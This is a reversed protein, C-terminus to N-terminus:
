LLLGVERARNVAQVRSNAGLKSYLSRIHSQITSPKVLLHAAMEGYSLGSAIGELVDQERRTLEIAGHNGTGKLQPAGAIRFLHRGLSPSIPSQGHLVDRIGRAIFERDDGKLLYGTVGAKIAAFLSRESAGVSVGLIATTPLRKRLQRIVELGNADPQGLDVVALDSHFGKRQIHELTPAAADFHEVQWEGGVRDLALGLQKTFLPDDIVIMAKRIRLQRM